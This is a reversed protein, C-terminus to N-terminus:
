KQGAERYRAQWTKLYERVGRDVIKDLQKVEMSKIEKRVVYYEQKTETSYIKGYLTDEHM